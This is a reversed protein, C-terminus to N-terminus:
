GKLALSFAADRAASLAVWADHAARGTEDSPDNVSALWARDYADQAAQVRSHAADRATLTPNM